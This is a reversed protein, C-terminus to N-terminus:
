TQWWTDKLSISNKIIINNQSINSFNQPKFLAHSLPWHINIESRM